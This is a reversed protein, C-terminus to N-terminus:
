ISNSTPREVWKKIRSIRTRYERRGTRYESGMERGLIGPKVKGLILFVAAGPDRRDTRYGIGM